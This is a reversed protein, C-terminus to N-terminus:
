PRSSDKVAGSRGVLGEVFARAETLNYSYLRRALGIAAMTQGSEALELLRTEQEERSLAELGDYDQVVRVPTLVDTHRRMAHLFVAPGPVIGWELRLRTASVLSMPYHKYKTGSYGYWRAEKPSPKAREDALARALPGSEGALEFEVMRRFRMSSGAGRQDPLNRRERVLRVSRIERHPVFVVTPDEPPFHYNLYSRFQIFLGDDSMRVLWNSRLFRAVIFRRLLFLGVVLVGALYYALGSGRQWGLLALGGGTCITVFTAILARTPSYRFVRDRENLPVDASRMLLM